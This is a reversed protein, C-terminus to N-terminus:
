SRCSELSNAHYEGYCIWTRHVRRLGFGPINLDGRILVDCDPGICAGKQLLDSWDIIYETLYLALHQFGNGSQMCHNGDPGSKGNPVTPIHGCAGKRSPRGETHTMVDACALSTIYYDNVTQLRPFKSIATIMMINGSVIVLVIISLVVGMSVIWGDDPKTSNQSKTFNPAPWPTLLLDM